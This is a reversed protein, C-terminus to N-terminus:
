WRSSPSCCRLRARIRSRTSAPGVCCRRMVSWSRSAAYRAAAAIAGLATGWLVDNEDAHGLEHAVVSEVEAPTADELLTDYVVIRRTSGFGSVYANLTTTRRSADAVLVDDVPVGDREAMSLLSTRLAGDPMPTFRNFVPEVVLPYAFSLLVVLAAALGAGLAWWWNPLWRVLAFVVVLVVLVLGAQLAFGRAVDSLWGGWSRTSLEYDRRVTEAWARFPLSVFATVLLIALGGVLVSAWWGGGFPRAVWAVLRAGAPTLGLVVATLLGSALGLYAAPSIAGGTHM